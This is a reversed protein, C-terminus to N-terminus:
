TTNSTDDDNNYSGVLMAWRLPSDCFANLLRTRLFSRWLKFCVPCKTNTGVLGHCLLGFKSTYRKFSLAGIM